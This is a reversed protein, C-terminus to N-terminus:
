PGAWSWGDSVVMTHLTTRRDQDAAVADLYGQELQVPIGEDRLPDLLPPPPAEVAPSWSTDTATTLYRTVAYRLPEVVNPDARSGTAVGVRLMTLAEDLHALARPAALVARRSHFYHLVPYALHQEASVTVTPLLGILQQEFMQSFSTGNWGRRVIEGSTEGLAHIQIALARRQVVAGLVSLLYTISLTILFLGSFSAAATAVRWAPTTAVFDGTGLTFVTFGTYYVVDTAGADVRTTANAVAGSGAFVLAWGCWLLAVWALVTTILLVAGGWALPSSESDQRHLRLMARWVHGLVRDTIPGAGASVTLTTMFADVFVAGM